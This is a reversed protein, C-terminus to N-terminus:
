VNDNRKILVNAFPTATYGVYASRNFKNMLNRIGYNIATPNVEHEGNRGDISYKKTNVSANDCEDDIILLPALIPSFTETPANEIIPGFTFIPFFESIWEWTNISPFVM